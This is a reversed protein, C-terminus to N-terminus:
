SIFIKWDHNKNNAQYFFIPRNLYKKPIIVPFLQILTSVRRIDWRDIINCAEDQMEKLNDRWSINNNISVVLAQFATIPEATLENSSSKAFPYSFIINKAKSKLTNFKIEYM